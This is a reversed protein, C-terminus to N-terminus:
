TEDENLPIYNDMHRKHLFYAVWAAMFTLFIISIQYSSIPSGQSFYFNGYIDILGRHTIYHNFYLLTRTFVYCIIALLSAYVLTNNPSVPLFGRNGARRIYYYLAGTVVALFIVLSGLYEMWFNQFRDVMLQELPAYILFIIMVSKLFYAVQFQMQTSARESLRHGLLAFTIVSPVFALWAYERSELYFAGHLFVSILFIFIDLIVIGITNRKRAGASETRRYFHIVPITALLLLFVPGLLLVYGVVELGTLYDAYCPTPLM